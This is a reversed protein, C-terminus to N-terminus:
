KPSIPALSADNPKSIKPWTCCDMHGHTNGIVSWDDVSFSFQMIGCTPLNDLSYWRTNILETLGPNHGVICVTHVTNDLYQVIGQLTVLSANYLKKEKRYTTNKKWWVHGYAYATKKTRVSPSILVLDPPSLHDKVRRSIVRLDRKWRNSLKRKKDPCFVDDWSSKAHRALIVTKM